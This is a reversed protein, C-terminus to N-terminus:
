DTSPSPSPSPTPTPSPQITVSVGVDRHDTYLAATTSVAPAALAGLLLAVVLGVRVQRQRGPRPGDTSSSTM